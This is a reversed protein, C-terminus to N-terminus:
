AGALAMIVFGAAGIHALTLLVSGTHLLKFRPKDGSDTARNIAPMLVQRAFLTTVAIAGLIAASVPAVFAAAAGAVAEEM